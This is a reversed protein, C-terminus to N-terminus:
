QQQQPPALLQKFQRSKEQGFEVATDLAGPAGQVVNAATQATAGLFQPLMDGPRIVETGTFRVFRAFAKLRESPNVTDDLAKTALKLVHPATIWKSFKRMGLVTLIIPGIGTVSQAGRGASASAAGKIAHTPIGARIGSQLGGLAVRRKLLTGPDIAGLGWQRKAVTFFADLDKLSVGADALELARGLAQRKLGLDSSLGLARELKPISFGGTAVMKEVTSESFSSEMHTRLARRFRTKGVVRFLDGMAQPSESNFFTTFMEDANETGERTALAGAKGAGEEAGARAGLEGVEFIDLQARGFGKATKGGQLIAWDRYKGNLAKFGEGFVGGVEEVDLRMADKMLALQRLVAPSDSHKSMLENVVRSLTQYQRPTMSDLRTLGKEIFKLVLNEDALGLDRAAKALAEPGRAAAREFGAAARAAKGKEVVRPLNAQLDDAVGQAAKRLNNPEIIVGAEDAGRFLSEYANNFVRRVARYRRGFAKTLDVASDALTNVVPAVDHFMQDVSSELAEGVKVDAAKPGPFLGPLTGFIKRLWRIGQNESVSEVGLPILEGGFYASLRKSADLVYQSTPGSVNQVFQLGKRGVNFTAKLAQPVAVALAAEEAARTAPELSTPIDGVVHEALPPVTRGDNFLGRQGVLRNQGEFGIFPFEDTFEAGGFTRMIEVGADFTLSGFAAGLGAGARNGAFAGLPTAIVAGPGTTLGALGGAATGIAEGTQEFALVTAPRFDQINGLPAGIQGGSLDPQVPADGGLTDLRALSSPANSLNFIEARKSSTLTGPSEKELVSVIRRTEKTTPQDGAITFDFRGDRTNFGLSGM